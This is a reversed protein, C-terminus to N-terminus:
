RLHPPKSRKAHVGGFSELLDYTERAIARDLPTQGQGNLGNVDVGTEVLYRVLELNAGPAAYQLANGMSGGLEACLRLVALNGHRAAEEALSRGAANRVDLGSREAFARVEEPTGDLGLREVEDSEVLPPADPDAKLSAILEEFDRAVLLLESRDSLEDSNVEHDWYRVAGTSLDLLFYDGGGSVAFTLLGSRSPLPFGFRQEAMREDDLHLIAGLCLRTKENVDVCNPEPSGGGDRLLFERYQAPLRIEHAREFRRM